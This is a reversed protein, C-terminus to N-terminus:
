RLMPSGCLEISAERVKLPAKVKSAQRHPLKMIEVGFMSPHLDYVRASM